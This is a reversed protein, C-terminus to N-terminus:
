DFSPLFFPSLSFYSESLEGLRISQFETELALAPRFIGLALVPVSHSDHVGPATKYSNLKLPRPLVWRQSTTRGQLLRETFLLHVATNKVAQGCWKGVADPGAISYEPNGQNPRLSASPCINQLQM